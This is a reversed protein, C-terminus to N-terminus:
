SDITQFLLKTPCCLLTNCPTTSQIQFTRWLSTKLVQDRTQWATETPTSGQPLHHWGPQLFYIRAAAEKHKRNQWWPPTGVVHKQSHVGSHWLGDHSQLRKPVMQKTQLLFTKTWSKPWLLVCAVLRHVKTIRHWNNVCIGVKMATPSLPELYRWSWMPFM